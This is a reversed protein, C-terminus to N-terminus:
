DRMLAASAEDLSQATMLLKVNTEYARQAEIMAVLAETPNVNSGELAGPMVRAAADDPLVGGAPVRFLNDSGKLLPSGASNVLRVRGVQQPQSADGGAPVIWVGGDEAIRVDDAPPISLPAGGEGEVLFGDGTQLLGDATVSLDGRRSYAPDGVADQVVLMATGQVAIDLPNGTQAIVGAQMDASIVGERAQARGAVNGGNLYQADANAIEARFGTTSANALNNATVQQRAMNGRMASLATYIMRDM